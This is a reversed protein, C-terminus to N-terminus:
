EDFFQRAQSSSFLSIGEMAQVLTLLSTYAPLPNKVLKNRIEAVTLPASAWLLKIVELENETLGPQRPRAM